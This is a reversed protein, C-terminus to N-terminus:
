SAQQANPEKESDVKVISTDTEKKDPKNPIIYEFAPANFILEDKYEKLGLWKTKLRKQFLQNDKMSLSYAKAYPRNAVARLFKGDVFHLAAYDDAVYGAKIEGSQVFKAYAARRSKSAFHPCNSYPLVGLCNMVTLDGPISDTICQDFWCVSGASGGSLMTGNNYADLLIKDLNWEKWVGLMSKSQGGGVYVIDQDMIFGAIDATHLKFLSLSTPICPYRNFVEKFYNVYGDNDGSATPLFCIKPIRKNSQALIYLDMLPNKGDTGGDGMCIVQKKIESM